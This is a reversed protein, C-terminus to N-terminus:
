DRVNIGDIFSTRWKNDFKANIDDKNDNHQM